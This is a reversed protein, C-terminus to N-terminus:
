RLSVIKGHNNKVGLTLMSFILYQLRLLERMGGGKEPLLYCTASLLYFPFFLIVVALQENKRDHVLDVGGSRVVVVDYDHNGSGFVQYKSASNGLM